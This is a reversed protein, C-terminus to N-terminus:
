LSSDGSPNAAANFMERLSDEIKCVNNLDEFFLEANPHLLGVQGMDNFHKIFLESTSPLTVQLKIQQM